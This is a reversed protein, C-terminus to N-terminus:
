GSPQQGQQLAAPHRHSPTVTRRHSPTVIHHHSSHRCFHSQHTSVGIHPPHAGCRLWPPRCRVALCCWRRRRLAALAGAESALCRLTTEPWLKISGTKGAHPQAGHTHTHTHEGHTHTHAHQCLPLSVLLRAARRTASCGGTLGLRRLVRTGRWVGCAVRWVGCAVGTTVLLHTHGAMRTLGLRHAQLQFNAPSWRAISSSSSSSSGSSASVTGSSHGPTSGHLGGATGGATDRPLLPVSRDLKRMVVQRRTHTRTARASPACSVRSLSAM